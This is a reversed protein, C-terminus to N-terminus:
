EEIKIIIKSRIITINDFDGTAQLQRMVADAEEITRFDGVRCLWDGVRCLWRPSQFVTYVEMDPFDRKAIGAVRYAEDKAQRSNNGAYLQIRYGATEITKGDRSTTATKRGVLAAVDASQTIHVTGQGPTDKALEDLIDQASATSALLASLIILATRM